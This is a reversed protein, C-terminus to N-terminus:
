PLVRKSARGHDHHNFTILGATVITWIMASAIKRLPKRDIAGIREM